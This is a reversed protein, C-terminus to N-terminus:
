EAYLHYQYKDEETQNIESLMLVKWTWGHQQPHCPKMRKKHTEASIKLFYPSYYYQVYALCKDRNGLLFGWLAAFYFRCRMEYEMGQVYMIEIHQMTNAFLQQDLDDFTKSLMDEKDKFCRYIYAENISTALGIQKTSAKDLGERAIVHITGDILKRRLEDQKM